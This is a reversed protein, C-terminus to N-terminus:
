RYMPVTGVSFMSPHAVTRDDITWPVDFPSEACEENGWSGNTPMVPVSADYEVGESDTTCVRMTNTVVPPM